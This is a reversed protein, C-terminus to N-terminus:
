TTATCGPCGDPVEVGIGVSPLRLEGILDDLAQQTLASKLSTVIMGAVAGRALLRKLTPPVGPVFPDTSHVLLRLDDARPAAHIGRLLRTQYEDVRDVVVVAFRASDTM